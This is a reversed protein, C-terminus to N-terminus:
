QIRANIPMNFAMRVPRGRQKAPEFNPLKNIVRLAEEDLSEDVGRVVKAESISGDKNVVFNVVIIGQSGMKKSIEPFKFNKAVHKQMMRQFCDARDQETKENECGPFVPKNEVVAFNLVEDTEEGGFDVVEVEDDQDVEVTEMILEEELEVIDEVVEIQEPPPPPPPPKKVQRQTQVIEEEDIVIDLEGLFADRKEYTKWNVTVILLILSVALGILFFISRKNELDAKNSKKSKM